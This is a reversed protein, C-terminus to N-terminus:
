GHAPIFILWHGITPFALHPSASAVRIRSRGAKYGEAPSGAILPRFALVARDVVPRMPEMLDYV